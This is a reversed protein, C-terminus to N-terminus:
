TELGADGSAIAATNGRFGLGTFFTEKSEARSSKPKFSKVSSFAKRMPTLLDQIDPGMFIKVVFNGGQKLHLCAVALAELTLELSRAQDTFRTGTTRPAMDSIVLDFPGLEALKAEFAASRQFVDEQMFLVQPPFATETSQIDCALVLGKSGVKEAVGLSWSGPAAGLDLVKMGPKLLRFKADLEKLKYVSRAPYNERKAKLFYHDRYEKM